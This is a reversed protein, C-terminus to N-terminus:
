RDVSKLLRCGIDAIRGAIAVNTAARTDIGAIKQTDHPNSRMAEVKDARPRSAQAAEATRTLRRRGYEALLLAEARGDHKALHLEAALFMLRAKHLTAHKDKSLGYSRKWVIPTVFELPIHMAHLVSLISGFSVGFSFSSAIGQKPM